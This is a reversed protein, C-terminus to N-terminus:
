KPPEPRYAIALLGFGIVGVASAAFESPAFGVVVVMFMIMGVFSITRIPVESM